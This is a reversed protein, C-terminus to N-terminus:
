ETEQFHLLSKKLIFTEEIQAKVQVQVMQVFTPLPPAGRFKIRTSINSVFKGHCTEERVISWIWGASFSADKLSTGHHSRTQQCERVIAFPLL